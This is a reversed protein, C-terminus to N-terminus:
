FKPTQMKSDRYACIIVCNGSYECVLFGRVKTKYVLTLPKRTAQPSM